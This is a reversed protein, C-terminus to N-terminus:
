HGSAAAAPCRQLPRIGPQPVRTSTEQAIRCVFLAAGSGPCFLLLASFEGATLVYVRCSQGPRANGPGSSATSEAGLPLREDRDAAPPDRRMETAQGSAEATAAATPSRRVAPGPTSSTSVLMYAFLMVAVMGSFVPVWCVVRKATMGLLRGRVPGAAYRAPCVGFLLHINVMNLQDRWWQPDGFHAAVPRGLRQLRLVCAQALASAMEGSAADPHRLWRRVAAPSEGVAAALEAHDLGAQDALDNLANRVHELREQCACQAAVGDDNM